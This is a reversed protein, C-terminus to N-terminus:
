YIKAAIVIGLLIKIYHIQFNFFELITRFQKESFQTSKLTTESLKQIGIRTKSNLSVDYVKLLEPLFYNFDDEGINEINLTKLFKRGEKITKIKLLLDKKHLSDDILIRLSDLKKVYKSHEKIIKIDDVYLSITIDLEGNDYYFTISKVSELEGFEKLLIPSVNPKPQSSEYDIVELLYENFPFALMFPLIEGLQYQSNNLNESM